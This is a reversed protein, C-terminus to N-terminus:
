KFDVREFTLVAALLLAGGYGLAYLASVGFRSWDIPQQYAAALRYDLRDLQPIVWYVATGAEKIFDSKSRSAIEWLDTAGHGILYLGVSSLSSVLPGAVSSFFAGMASLFALEIALGGIAAIQAETIDLHLYSAQVFFLVTMMALMAWLTVITGVTRGVVFQARSVPRSLVLFITRRDIERSLQGSSLFIALGVMLLSMVGLGFDTAVRDLTFVTMNIVLTTSLLMVLAFAVVILTVRNRRAETFGALSLILINRMM